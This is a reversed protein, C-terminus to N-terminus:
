LGDREHGEVKIWKPLRRAIRGDEDGDLNVTCTASDTRMGALTLDPDANFIAEAMADGLFIDEAIKRASSTIFEGRVNDLEISPVVWYEGAVLIHTVTVRVPKGEEIVIPEVIGPRDPYPNCYGVVDYVAVTLWSSHTAVREAFRKAEAKVARGSKLRAGLRGVAARSLKDLKDSQSVVIVSYDKM